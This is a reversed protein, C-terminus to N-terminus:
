SLQQGVTPATGPNFATNDPQKRENGRVLLPAPNAFDDRAQCLIVGAGRM